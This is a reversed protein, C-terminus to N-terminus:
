EPVALPVRNGSTYDKIHRWEVLETHRHGKPLVLACKRSAGILKAVNAHKRGCPRGLPMIRVIRGINARGLEYTLTQGM